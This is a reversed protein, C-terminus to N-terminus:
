IKNERRKFIRGLTEDLKDPGPSGLHLLMNWKTTKPGQAYPVLWVHATEGACIPCENIYEQYSQNHKACFKAM